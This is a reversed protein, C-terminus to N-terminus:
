VLGDAEILVYQAELVFTLEIRKLDHPNIVTKGNIQNFGIGLVRDMVCETHCSFGEALDMGVQFTQM